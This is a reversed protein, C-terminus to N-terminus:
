GASLKPDAKGRGLQAVVAEKAMDLWSHWYGLSWGLNLFWLFLTPRDRVRVVFKVPVLPLSLFCKFLMGKPFGYAWHKRYLRASYYGFKKLRRFNSRVDGRFRFNVVADKVEHLTVGLAQIRWCYDIDQLALFQGDFGGVAEHHVRKVALNSASGFPRFPHYLKGTGEISTLAASFENRDNLQAMERRGCVLDHQELAAAMAALWGPAVADDADCFLLADGQAQACAMNRAHAAGRRASADVVKLHPMTQQYRRVVDLTGDTSGNDGVVIEWPGAFVQQYLADLQDAITTAANYAPIIVSLM